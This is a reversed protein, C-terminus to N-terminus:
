KNKDEKLFIYRNKGITRFYIYLLIFFAALYFPLNNNIHYKFIRNGALVMIIVMIFIISTINRFSSVSFQRTEQNFINFDFNKSGMEGFKVRLSHTGPLVDFEATEGGSLYGIRNGDLLVEFTNTYGVPLWDKKRHIILKPM